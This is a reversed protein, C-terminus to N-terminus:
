AEFSATKLIEECLNVFNIGYFDAIEPYSSLPTLGTHTNVEIIYFEQQHKDLIFEVRVMGNCGIVNSAKEALRLLKNNMDHSLPAPLIHEALGETYKSDYDYFRRELLKIELAGLAKGNLVAVQFEPGKIYKEIMVANGYPFDYNAFNFDDEVFIIEIGISSGQALPKIVYPREMPDNTINDSKNIIISEATKINNAIFLEKSKIKSFALASALVGSHTYPIRLINLLGPLCGDEGYTGHLANFVIDPKLTGLVNAIDAGMDIFTVKYGAKTLADTVRKSSVLSVEREASMGGGVVGIHKKGESSVVTVKSHEIFSTQYKHM